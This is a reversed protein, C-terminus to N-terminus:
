FVDGVTQGISLLQEVLVLLQLVLDVGVGGLIGLHLVESILDSLSLFVRLVHKQALYVFKRSSDQIDKM